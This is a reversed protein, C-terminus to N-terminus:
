LQLPVQEDFLLMLLQPDDHVGHTGGALAAAVQLPVIHPKVQLEPKWLQLPAHTDFLLKLLQPVVDHACHVTGLLPVAVQLPVAHPM